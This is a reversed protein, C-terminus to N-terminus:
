HILVFQRLFASSVIQIQITKNILYTFASLANMVERSWFTNCQPECLPSSTHPGSLNNTQQQQQPTPTNTQKDTSRQSIVYNYDKM